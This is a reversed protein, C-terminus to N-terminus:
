GKQAELYPVDHYHYSYHSHHNGTNELCGSDLSSSHKHATCLIDADPLIGSDQHYTEETTGLM